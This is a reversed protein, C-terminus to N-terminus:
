GLLEVRMEPINLSSQPIIQISNANPILINPDLTAQYYYGSTQFTDQFGNIIVSGRKVTNGESFRLTLVVQGAFMNAQEFMDPPLNFYLVPYDDQELISIMKIREVLYNGENSTFGLRNDGTSLLEKAVDQRTLVGCDIFGAYLLQGNVSISLRGAEQARCQPVFELVGKTLKQSEDPTITFHQESSSAQYNTVDASVLINRLKYQNAEWFSWGASSTSFTITNQPQIYEQPLKVPEPSRSTITREFIPYGNLSILLPGRAQDVNFTLLYNKAMGADARFELHSVQTSFASQKVILSDIFKVEETNVATYVTTSPIAHEITGSGQAHLTGLYKNMLLVGGGAGGPAIYGGGGYGGTGGSTGSLLAEREAPPLFLIYLILILGILLIVIPTSSRFSAAGRRSHM